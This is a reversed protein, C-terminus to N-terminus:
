YRPLLGRSKMWDQVRMPWTTVLHESPRLGYGHGGTPYVHLEVPVNQNKLALAYFMANEVRVPDDQAIAIFTQPTNPGIKLDPAIKDNDEKVTLYAPYILVSFDPRCSASDIDDVAAYSREQHNNSVFAALHGGASFGLIGIRSPDLNWEKSRHRLLSLARQGDQAAVTHKESGERKPVRYKLLAASVGIKNLWRCVETGELDMALIHYGGGPCVLVVPAAEKGSAPYLTLTPTAVNGLRVVPKGAVQNDSPKTLDKEPGLTVKENPPTGPWLEVPDSPAAFLSLAAACVFSTLLKSKVCTAM